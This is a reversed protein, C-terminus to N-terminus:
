KSGTKGGLPNNLMWTLAKQLAPDDLTGIWAKM